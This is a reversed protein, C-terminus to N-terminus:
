CFPRLCFRHDGRFDFQFVTDGAAALSHVVFLEVSAGHDVDVGLATIEGEAELERVAGEAFAIKCLFFTLFKEFLTNVRTAYHFHPPCEGRGKNRSLFRREYCYLGKRLFPQAPCAAPLRGPTGRATRAPIGKTPATSETRGVPPVFVRYRLEIPLAGRRSSSAPEVGASVALAGRTSNTASYLYLLGRDARGGPCLCPPSKCIYSLASRAGKGSPLDCTRIRGDAGSGTSMRLVLQVPKRPYLVLLFCFRTGIPALRLCVVRLPSLRSLGAGGEHLHPLTTIANQLERCSCGHTLSVPACVACTPEFGGIEVM